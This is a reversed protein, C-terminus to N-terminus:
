EIINIKDPANQTAITFATGNMRLVSDATVRVLDPNNNTNSVHAFTIGQLNHHLIRSLLGASAENSLHGDRSAIRQKLRWPYPGAQLMQVDHNAELVLYDVDKLRQEMLNTTVGTDTLAGVKKGKAEFVFACPDVADHPISFSSVKFGNVNFSGGVGFHIVGGGAEGMVSRVKSYSNENIYVPVKLNRSLPGAGRVHDNHEHSIVIGAVSDPDLGVDKMRRITEKASFGADLLLASDGDSIYTCNGSSGSGLVCVRIM